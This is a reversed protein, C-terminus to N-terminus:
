NKLFKVYVYLINHDHEDSVGGGVEELDVRYGRIEDWGWKGKLFCFYAAWNTSGM